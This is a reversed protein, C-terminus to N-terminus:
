IVVPGSPVALPIPLYMRPIKVRRVKKPKFHWERFAKLTAEDLLPPTAGKGTDPEIEVEIYKGPPPRDGASVNSHLLGVLVVALLVKRLSSIM